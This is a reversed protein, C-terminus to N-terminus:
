HQNLGKPIPVSSYTRVQQFSKFKLIAAVVNCIVKAIYCTYSNMILITVCCLYKKWHMPNWIWIRHEKLEKTQGGDQIKLYATILGSIAAM